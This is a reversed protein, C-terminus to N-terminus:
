GVSPRFNEVIGKNEAELCSRCRATRQYVQLRTIKVHGCELSASDVGDPISERSLIKRVPAVKVSIQVISKDRIAQVKLALEVLKDETLNPYYWKGRELISVYEDRSIQHDLLESHRRALSTLTLFVMVDREWLETM